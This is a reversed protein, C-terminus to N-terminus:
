DALGGVPGPPTGLSPRPVRQRGRAVGGGSPADGPFTAVQAAEEHAWSFISIRDVFPLEDLTIADDSPADALPPEVLAAKVVLDIIAAREPLTAIDLGGAGQQALMQQVAAHLPVPIQGQAALDLLDVKRVTVTLGCSLNLTAQRGQRWAHLNTM